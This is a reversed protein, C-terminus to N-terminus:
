CELWCGESWFSCSSSSCGAPSYLTWRRFPRSSLNRSVTRFSSRARPPHTSRRPRSATTRRRSGRARRERTRHAVTLHFPKASSVPRRFPHRAKLSFLRLIRTASIVPVLRQAPFSFVNKV